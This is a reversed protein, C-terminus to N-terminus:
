RLLDEPRFLLNFRRFRQEFLRSEKPVEFRRAKRVAAEASQDFAANGSSRLITVAVVDGTPVLEVRLEVEMGNRASPPRSWNDVIRQYIGARYTAAAANDADSANAALEQDESMLADELARNNLADLRAAKEASERARDQQEALRAAEEARLDPKVEVPKVEVEPQPKPKAPAPRTAAPKPAAPIPQARPAPKPEMVILKSMVIQPKIERVTTADPQWGVRLAAVVLAHVLLAFLLPLTYQRAADIM